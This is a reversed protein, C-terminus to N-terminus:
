RDIDIISFLIGFTKSGRKKISVNDSQLEPYTSIEKELSGCIHSPIDYTNLLVKLIKSLIPVVCFGEMNEDEVAMARLVFHDNAIGYEFLQILGVVGVKYEFHTTCAKHTFVWEMLVFELASEGGPGPITSLFNIVADLQTYILYGFISILSQMNADSKTCQMKSLIARLLPELRTFLHEGAKVILIIILLSIFKASHEYGYPDLLKNIIEIIFDIGLQGESTRYGCVQSAAGSFLFNTM